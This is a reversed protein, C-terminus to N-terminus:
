ALGLMLLLGVIWNLSMTLAIHILIRRSLFVAGITEYKLKTLIPWMIVILGIAVPISVSQLCATDFSKSNRPSVRRLSCRHGHVSTTTIQLRDLIGLRRFLM